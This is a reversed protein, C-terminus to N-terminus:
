LDSTAPAGVSGELDKLIVRARQSYPNSGKAAESLVQTGAGIDELQLYALGLYYRIESEALPYRGTTLVKQLADRATAPEHAGLAAVGAYVLNISDLQGSAVGELLLPYAMAYEQRDYARLGVQADEAPGLTAEQRPLWTFSDQALQQVPSPGRFLWWGLGIVLLATAAILWGWRPRRRRRRPRDAAAAAATPRPFEAELTAFRERLTADDTPTPPSPPHAARPPLRIGM